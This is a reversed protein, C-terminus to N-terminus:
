KRGAMAVKEPEEKLIEEKLEKWRAKIKNQSMAAQDNDPNLVAFLGQYAAASRPKTLKKGIHDSLKEIDDLIENM